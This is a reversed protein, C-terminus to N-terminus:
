RLRASILQFPLLPRWPPFRELLREAWAGASHNSLFPPFFGFRGIAPTTFGAAELAPALKSRRMHRVGGDGAWTMGPTLAIQAYFLPSFANPELFVVRGGPKLMRAVGRFCGDLDHVHHLMFLGVVGDFAGELAGPPRAADGEHLVLRPEGAAYQRLRDLLVPSLDLGEIRYGRRALLLTYRGMGCGIELLRDHRTFAGCALLEDLHRGLYPSERPVMTPPVRGEFYERQRRNHDLETTVNM